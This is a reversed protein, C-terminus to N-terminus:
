EIDGSWRYYALCTGEHSVMCPGIPNEPTCVKKFFPCDKPTIKGILVDGCRCGSNKPFYSNSPINFRVRANYSKYIDRIEYGGDAVVGIGRWPTDKLYFVEDVKALMKLNGKEAVARKYACRIDIENKEIMDLLQSIGILIDLPEFGMVVAPIGFSKIESFYDWGVVASVHGPLIVGDAYLNGFSGLAKLISRTNKHFSLFSLNKIGRKSVFDIAVATSPITTEFGVGLFVWEKDPNEEAVTLADLASYVVEVSHGESRFDSLSKGSVPVKLLDGYLIVGVNYNELLYAVEYLEEEATVCVPCGPGAIFNINPAFAYRFGYQFINHTHTGCFEMLRINTFSTAREKLQAFVKKTIDKDKYFDPYLAM